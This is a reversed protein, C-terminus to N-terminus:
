LSTKILFPHSLKIKTLIFIGFLCIGYTWDGLMQNKLFPIASIYCLELGAMTKPYLSGTLWIGFNSIIYFLFPALALCTATRYISKEIKLMHGMLVLSGISLYVFLMTNHFGLILDTILMTVSAVLLSLKWSRMFFLSFLTIANIATLNPPHPAFRSLIGFFILMLITAVRTNNM